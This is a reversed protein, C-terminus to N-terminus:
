VKNSKNTTEGEKKREVHGVVGGREGGPLAPGWRHAPGQQPRWPAAAGAAPELPQCLAGAQRM